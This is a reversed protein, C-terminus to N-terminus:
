MSMGREYELEQQHFYQLLAMKNRVEIDLYYLKEVYDKYEDITLHKKYELDMESKLREVEDLLIAIDGEDHNTDEDYLFTLVIRALNNFRRDFKTHLVKDLLISDYINLNSVKILKSNKNKPHFSYGNRDYEYYEITFIKKRKKVIYKM